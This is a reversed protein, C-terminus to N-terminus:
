RLSDFGFERKKLSLLEWCLGSRLLVSKLNLGETMKVLKSRFFKGDNTIRADSIRWSERYALGM